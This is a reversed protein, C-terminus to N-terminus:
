KKNDIFVGQSYNKYGKDGYSKNAKVNQNFSKMKSKLEHFESSFSHNNRDDITKIEELVNTILSIKSKLDIIMPYKSTDIEDISLLGLVEKLHSFKTLFELDLINITEIIEAREQIYDVLLNLNGKEIAGRQNEAIKKMQLLFKYKENSIDLLKAMLNAETM